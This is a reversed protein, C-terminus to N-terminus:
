LFGTMTLIAATCLTAAMADAADGAAARVDDGDVAEAAARARRGGADAIVHADRNLKSQRADVLAQAILADAVVNRMTTPPEMRELASTTLAM